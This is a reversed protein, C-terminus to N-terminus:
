KVGIGLGGKKRRVVWHRSADVQANSLNDGTLREVHFLTLLGRGASLGGPAMVYAGGRGGRVQANSLNDGTSREVHFLTLLGELVTSNQAVCIVDTDTVEKVQVYVAVVICSHPWAARSPTLSAALIGVPHRLHSIICQM